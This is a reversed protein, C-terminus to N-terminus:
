LAWTIRTHILAGPMSFAEWNRFSSTVLILGHANLLKHRKSKLISM